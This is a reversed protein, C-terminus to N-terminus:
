FWCERIQPGGQVMRGSAVPMHGLWLSEVIVILRFESQIRTASACFDIVNVNKKIGAQTAHTLMELKRLLLELAILEAPEVVSLFYKM